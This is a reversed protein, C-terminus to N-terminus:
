VLKKSIDVNQFRDLEDQICLRIYEEFNQRTNQELQEEISPKEMAIAVSSNWIEIGMFSIVHISGQTMCVLYDLRENPKPSNENFKYHLEKNLDELMMGIMDLSILNMHIM